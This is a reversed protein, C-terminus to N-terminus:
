FSEEDKNQGPHRELQQSFIAWLEQLGSFRRPEAADTTQVTGILAEPKNALHRYIRVVYSDIV